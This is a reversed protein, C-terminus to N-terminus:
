GVVGKVRKKGTLLDNMPGKKVRELKAKREKELEIKEDVAGPSEAIKQPESLLTKM